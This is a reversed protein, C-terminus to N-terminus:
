RTRRSSSSKRAPHLLNLRSEGGKLASVVADATDAEVNIFFRFNGDQQVGLLFELSVSAGDALRANLNISGVRVTSNLAGGLPQSPPVELTLASLTEQTQNQRTVVVGEVPNSLLRVDAENEAQNGLTTIEVVRFRLRTLPAGTKNTFTRRIALTGQAGNTVPSGNRVYACASSPSGFGSCQPDILTSKITGNRQIPSTSNEPGPAGLIAAAGSLPTPDTSVLVFDLFNDDTDQPTGGRLNRIFSHENNITIPVLLGTGEVFLRDSVQATIGGKAGTLEPPPNFGVADVRTNFDFNAPNSTSFIAVGGDDPIDFAYTTDGTAYQGLTYGNSNTALYHGRAPILTGNPITFLIIYGGTPSTDPTAVSWGSSNDSAQVTFPADSNNYIEIFENNAAAEPPPTFSPSPGRFRIESILLPAATPTAQALINQSTLLLLSFGFLILFFFPLRRASLM